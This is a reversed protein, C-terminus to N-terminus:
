AVSQLAGRDPRLVDAFLEILEERTVAERVPAARKWEGQDKVTAEHPQDSSGTM